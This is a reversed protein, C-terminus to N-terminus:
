PLVPCDDGLYGGGGCYRADQVQIHIGDPDSFYVEPTGGEIGGRNPMRLSVWHSLPPANNGSDRGTLGYDTLSALIADVDFETVSFCVHDIRGPQTPAGEANGGVYMLFQIGDGVGIVPSTPGQYAQFQKGFARTYFGNARSSNALFNTFHSIDVLSLLGPAVPEAASCVTGLPGDGGCHDEPSLQYTVGELDAFFLEQTDGRQTIWSRQARALGSAEALTPAGPEIGFAELEGRVRDIDFDAVSLGMHTFGPQEGAQTPSLTFFRPGPGIRLVVTDGQRAQVPAGLVDQYFAVSRAVDTVRLGFSHLKRVAVPTPSSQALLTPALAALPLAQLLRRRTLSFPKQPIIRSNPRTHTM